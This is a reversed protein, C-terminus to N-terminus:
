TSQFIRVEHNWDTCINVMVLAMVQVSLGCIIGMWLGQKVGNECSSYCYCYSLSLSLLLLLLLLLIHTHSLSLFGSHWWFSFRFCLACCFTDGCCLLSRSKYICM